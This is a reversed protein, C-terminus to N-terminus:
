DLIIPRDARVFLMLVAGILAFFGGSAIAFPWEFVQAFWPVLIAGLAGMANAGTNMVGGAAGAFQGGIAISTGWYGGETMQNFFFCCALLTVAIVPNTTYAGGFLLGASLLMGVIIPGRCGWRLGLKRCLRDCVWGGLAAGAAGALWQSSTVWGAMEADFGRQDVLYFYFWSFVQYFVYNMCSYSLTLLLVDRNKLVRLWGPPPPLDEIEPLRNGKILDLEAKNIAAYRRYIPM